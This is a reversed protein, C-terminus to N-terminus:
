SKNEGLKMLLNFGRTRPLLHHKLEVLGKSKAFELSAIHKEETYRTGECFM